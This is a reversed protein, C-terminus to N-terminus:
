FTGSEEGAAAGMAMGARDSSAGPTDAGTLASNRGAPTFPAFTAQSSSCVIFKSIGRRKPGRGTTIRTTNNARVRAVVNM